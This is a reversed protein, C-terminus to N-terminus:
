AGQKRDKKAKKAEVGLASIRRFQDTGLKHLTKQGGMKGMVSAFESLKDAPIEHIDM